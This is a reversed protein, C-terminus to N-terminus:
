KKLNEEDKLGDNEKIDEMCYKVLLILLKHLKVMIELQYFEPKEEYMQAMSSILQVIKNKINEDQPKEFRIRRNTKVWKNIFEFSVLITISKVQDTQQFCSAGHVTEGNIIIWEGSQLISQKGNTNFCIRGDLVLNIEISRHWHLPIYMGKGCLKHNFIKVPIRENVYGEAEYFSGMNNGREKWNIRKYFYDDNFVNIM